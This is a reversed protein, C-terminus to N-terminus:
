RYDGKKGQVNTKREVRLQKIKVASFIFSHRKTNLLRRIYVKSYLLVVREKQNESTRPNL